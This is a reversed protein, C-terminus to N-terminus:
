VSFLFLVEKPKQDYRGKLLFIVPNEESRMLHQAHVMALTFYCIWFLQLGSAPFLMIVSTQKIFDTPPMAIGVNNMIGVILKDFSNFTLSALRKAFFSSQAKLRNLSLM